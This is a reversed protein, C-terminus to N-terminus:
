RADRGGSIYDGSTEATGAIQERVGPCWCVPSLSSLQGDAAAVLSSQEGDAGCKVKDPFIM